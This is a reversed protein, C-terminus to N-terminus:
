KFIKCNLASWVRTWCRSRTCKKRQIAKSCNSIPTQNDQPLHIGEKETSIHMDHSFKEDM